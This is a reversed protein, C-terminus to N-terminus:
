RWTAAGERLVDNMDTGVRPRVIDVVRGARHWTTGVDRCARESAGKEDNEALVTLTGIGPLM